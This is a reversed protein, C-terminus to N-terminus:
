DSYIFNTADKVLDKILKKDTITNKDNVIRWVACQLQQEPTANVFMSNALRSMFRINGKIYGKSPDIRDISKSNYRGGKGRSMFDYAIGLVPCVEKKPDWYDFREYDMIEMLYQRDINHEFGRLRARTRTSSICGITWYSPSISRLTQRYLSTQEDIGELEPWRRLKQATSVTTNRRTSTKKVPKRWYGQITKLKQLEDGLAKDGKYDKPKMTEGGSKCGDKRKM